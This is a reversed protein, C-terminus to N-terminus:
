IFGALRDYASISMDLTINACFRNSNDTPWTIL